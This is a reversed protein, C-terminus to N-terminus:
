SQRDVEVAASQRRLRVVEARTLHWSRDGVTLVWRRRRRDRQRGESRARKLSVM